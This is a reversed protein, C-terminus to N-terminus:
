KNRKLMLTIIEELLETPKELTQLIQMAEAYKEEVLAQADALGLVQTYTTKNNKQDLHQPKGSTTTLSEEDLIDDQIQFALGLCDSFQTLALLTKNNSSVTAYYGMLISARFLAGTKLQYLTQLEQESITTQMITIDLAQGAAMGYIGAAESLETLMKLRQEASLSSPHTALIQFALTQLADGALVSMGESFQKHCTPKGRRLDANDMCPLDDHILSYTHILEVATATLDLNEWTANFTLGTAYTFLPRLYKGPSTLAYTMVTSLEQAPNKQLYPTYIKKLRAPIETLLIDLTLLENRLKM